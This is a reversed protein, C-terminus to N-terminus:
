DGLQESPPEWDTTRLIHGRLHLNHIASAITVVNDLTPGTFGERPFRTQFIRFRKSLQAFVQEILVRWASLHYNFRKQKPLLHKRNKLTFPIYGKIRKSPDKKLLYKPNLTFGGDAVVGFKQGEFDARKQSTNWERQDSAGWQSKGLWVIEGTFKCIFLINKGYGHHYYSYAGRRRDSVEFFKGDLCCVAYRLRKILKWKGVEANWEETTPWRVEKRLVDALQKTTFDLHRRLTTPPIWFLISLVLISTGTHMWFLCIFVLYKLELMPQYGMQPHLEAQCNLQFFMDKDVGLVSTLNCQ